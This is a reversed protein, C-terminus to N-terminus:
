PQKKENQNKANQSAQTAPVPKASINASEVERPKAIHPNIRQEVEYIHKKAQEFNL